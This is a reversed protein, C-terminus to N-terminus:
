QPLLTRREDGHIGDPTVLGSDEREEGDDGEGREVSRKEGELGFSEALLTMTTSEGGPIILGDVDDLQKRIAKILAQISRRVAPRAMALRQEEMGLMTLLQRRRNVLAVLDQQAATALPKLYRALDSRGLLAAAFEALGLADIRDTKALQGFSRAFDRAQRPNVVAVALGVAQLACALPAEYGGTAEM